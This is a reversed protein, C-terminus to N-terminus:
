INNSIPVESRESTIVMKTLMIFGTKNIARRFKLAQWIFTSDKNWYNSIYIERHMAVIYYIFYQM